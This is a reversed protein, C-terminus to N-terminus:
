FIANSKFARKPWRLFTLWLKLLLYVVIALLTKLVSDIVILLTRVLLLNLDKRWNLIISKM